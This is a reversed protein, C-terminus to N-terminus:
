QQETALPVHLGVPLKRRVLEVEVLDVWRHVGPCRPAYVLERRLPAEPLIPEEQLANELLAHHVEGPPHVVLVDLPVVQEGATEEAEVVDAEEVSRPRQRASPLQLLRIGSGPHGKAARGHQGDRELERSLVLRVGVDFNRSCKM